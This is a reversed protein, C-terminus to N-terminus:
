CTPHPRLCAAADWCTSTTIFPMPLRLLCCFPLVSCFATANTDRTVTVTFAACAVNETVPVAGCATRRCVTGGLCDVPSCTIAVWCCAPAPIITFVVSFPLDYLLIAPGWARIFFPLVTDPFTTCFHLFPLATAFLFGTTHHYPPVTAARHKIGDAGAAYFPLVAVRYCDLCFITAPLFFSRYRVPLCFRLCFASCCTDLGLLRRVYCTFLPLGSRVSLTFLRCCTTSCFPLICHYCRPPTYVIASRYFIERCFRLRLLAHNLLPFGLCQV